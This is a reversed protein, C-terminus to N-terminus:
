KINSYKRLFDCRSLNPFKWLLSIKAIYKNGCIFCIAFDLLLIIIFCGLSSFQNKIMSYIGYYNFINILLGHILYIQLTYKGLVTFITKKNSVCVCFFLLFAVGAGYQFLRFEASYGLTEYPYSFMFWLFFLANKINLFAITYVIAFIALFKHSKIFTIINNNRGCYFGILFFPFIAVLRQISVFMGANVNYGVVIGAVFSVIIYLVMSIKNDTDFLQVCLKWVILCFLYWMLWNPLLLTNIMREEANLCWFLLYYIGQWLVYMYIYENKIKIYNCKQSFFGSVFVFLPM